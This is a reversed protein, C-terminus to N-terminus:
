IDKQFRGSNRKFVSCTAMNGSHREQPYSTPSPCGRATMRDGTGSVRCTPLLRPQASGTEPREGICPFSPCPKQVASSRARRVTRQLACLYVASDSLELATINLDISSEEAKSSFRKQAFDANESYVAYMKTGRRLIYQPARNPYQRYWYLYVGSFDTTNYSCSFTVAGGEVGLM